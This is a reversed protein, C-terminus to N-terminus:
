NVANEPPKGNFVRAGQQWHRAHAPVFNPRVYKGVVRRTEGYSFARTVRVVYGEM